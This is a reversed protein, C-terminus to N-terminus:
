AAAYDYTVTRTEPGKHVTVWTQHLFPEDTDEYHDRKVFMWGIEKSGDDTDLYVKGICRGYEKVMARYMDGRDTFNTEYVDSDGMWSGETADVHREQMYLYDSSMPAEKRETSMALILCPGALPTLGEKVIEDSQQGVQSPFRGTPRWECADGQQGGCAAGAGDHEPEQAQPRITPERM